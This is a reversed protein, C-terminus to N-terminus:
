GYRRPYPVPRPAPTPGAHGPCGNAVAWRAWNAMAKVRAIKTAHASDEDLIRLLMAVIEVPLNELFTIVYRHIPSMLQRQADQEPSGAQLAAGQLQLEGRALRPPGVGQPEAGSMPKVVGESDCPPDWADRSPRVRWGTPACEVSLRRGNRLTAVLLARDRLVRAPGPGQGMEHGCRRCRDAAQSERSDQHRSRTASGSQQAAEPLVRYISIGQREAETAVVRMDETMTTNRTAADLQHRMVMWQPERRDHHIGSTLGRDLTSCQDIGVAKPKSTRLVERAGETLLRQRNAKWRQSKKRINRQLKARRRSGKRKRRVRDINQREGPDADGHCITEGTSAYTHGGDGATMGIIDSPDTIAGHDPPDPLTVAVLLHLAYRRARLGGNVNRRERRVEVLRYGRIDLHEPVPVKTRLIVDRAGYVRFTHQDLRVPPVYSSLTSTDYKRSRYDLTRCHHDSGLHNIASTTSRLLSNRQVQLLKNDLYAGWAGGQHIARPASARSDERSWTNVRGLLTDKHGRSRRHFPINPERNLVSVAWNYALRYQSALYGISTSTEPDHELPYVLTRIAEAM